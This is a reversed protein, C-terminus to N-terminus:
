GNGQGEQAGGTIRRWARHLLSGGPVPIAALLLGDVKGWAGLAKLRAAADDASEARITATWWVGRHPYSCVYDRYQTAM